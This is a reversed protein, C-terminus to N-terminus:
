NSAHNMRLKVRFMFSSVFYKGEERMVLTKEVTVLSNNVLCTYEGYPTPQVTDTSIILVSGERQAIQRGNKMWSVSHFSPYGGIATCNLVATESKDLTPKDAQVLIEPYEILLSVILM